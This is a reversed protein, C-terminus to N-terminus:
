KRTVEVLRESAELFKRRNEPTLYQEAFSAALVLFYSFQRNHLRIQESAGRVEAALDNVAREIRESELQIV